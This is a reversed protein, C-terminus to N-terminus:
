SRTARSSTPSSSAPPWASRKVTAPRSPPSRPARRRSPAEAAGAEARGAGAEASADADALIAAKIAGILRGYSGPKAADYSALYAARAEDLADRADAGSLLADHARREADLAGELRRQAENV